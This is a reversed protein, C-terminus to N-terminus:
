KEMSVHQSYEISAERCFVELLYGCHISKTSLYSFCFYKKLLFFFFLLVKDQAIFFCILGSTSKSLLGQFCPSLNNLNVFCVSM